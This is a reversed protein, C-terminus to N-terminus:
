ELDAAESSRGTTMNEPSFADFLHSLKENDMGIGTDKITFCLCAQDKFESKKEVTM